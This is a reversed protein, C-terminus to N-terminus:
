IKIFIQEIMFKLPVHAETHISLFDRLLHSNTKLGGFDWETFQRLYQITVQRIAHTSYLIWSLQNQTTDM